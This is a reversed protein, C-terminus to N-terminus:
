YSPRRRPRRRKASEPATRELAESESREQIRGRQFGDFWGAWANATKPANAGQDKIHNEFHARHRRADSGERHRSFFIELSARAAVTWAELGDYEPADGFIYEVPVELWLALYIADRPRGPPAPRGERQIWERRFGQQEYEEITLHKAQMLRIVRDPLFGIPRIVAGNHPWGKIKLSVGM